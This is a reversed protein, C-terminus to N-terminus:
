LFITTVVYCLIVYSKETVEIMFGNKTATKCM